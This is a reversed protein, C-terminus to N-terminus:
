KQPVFIKIAKNISNVKLPTEDGEEGDLDLLIKSNSEIDINKSQFYHVKSHNVHQGNLLGAFIQMLDSPKAKEIIMIDLLGDNCKAKPSLYKFGAVSATNSILFLFTDIEVINDDLTYKIMYSKDLQGPIELAAQFYYAYKGLITKVDSPVSHPINTFAGGGVVNVFYKSNAKGLDVEKFSDNLLINSFNIAGKPIRLQTAFDNVTGAPLIALKIKNESLMMGNVVEHVTGDGGSTIIVDYNNDAARKAANQADNKKKTAYFTFEAEQVSMIRKAVGFVKQQALEKGSSPNYIVMYRKM